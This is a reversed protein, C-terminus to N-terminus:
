LGLKNKLKSNYIGFPGTILQDWTVWEVPGADGQSPTEGIKEQYFYTVVFFSDDVRSFVPRLKNKDLLINTEEQVERVLAALMSEGPDVKGGPLGWQDISGRRAVGLVKDRNLACLCVGFKRTFLFEPIM